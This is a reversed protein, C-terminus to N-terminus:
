VEWHQYDVPEPDDTIFPPGAHAPPSMSLIAALGFGSIPFKGRNTTGLMANKGAHRQRRPNVSCHCHADFPNSPHVRRCDSAGFDFTM